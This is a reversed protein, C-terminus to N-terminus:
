KRPLGPAHHRDLPILTFHPVGIRLVGLGVVLKIEAIRLPLVVILVELSQVESVLHLPVPLIDALLPLELVRSGASFDHYEVVRASSM